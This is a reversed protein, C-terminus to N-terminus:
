EIGIEKLFDNKTTGETERMEQVATAAVGMPEETLEEEITMHGLNKAEEMADSVVTAKEDIVEEIKLGKYEPDNTKEEGTAEVILRYINYEDTASQGDVIMAVFLRYKDVKGETTIISYKYLDTIKQAFNSQTENIKELIDIIPNMKGVKVRFTSTKIKEIEESNLGAATLTSVIASKTYDDQTEYDAQTFKYSRGLKELIGMKKATEETLIVEEMILGFYTLNTLETESLIPNLINYINFDDSVNKGDILSTAFAKYKNVKNLADIIDYGYKERLQNKVEENIEVSKKIAKGISSIVSDDVCFDSEKFQAIEEETYGTKRMDNIIANQDEDSLAYFDDPTFTLQQMNHHLYAGGGGLAGAAALGAGAIIGASSNNTTITGGTPAITKGISGVSGTLDGLLGSLTKEQETAIEGAISEAASAAGMTGQAISGGEVIEGVNGAVSEGNTPNQAPNDERLDINGQSIKNSNPNIDNIVSGSYEKLLKELDYKDNPNKEDILLVLALKDKNITGDDNFIDIGYLDKIKQRISPDKKYIDELKDSITQLKLKSIGMQGEKIKKIEDDTYGVEKLKKIIIEKEGASLADWAKPDITYELGSIASTGGILSSSVGGLGSLDAGGGAGGGSAPGSGSVGTKSPNNEKNKQEVGRAENNLDRLWDGTGNASKQSSNLMGTTKSLASYKSAFYGHVRLDSKNNFDNSADVSEGAWKIINDIDEATLDLKDFDYKKEDM